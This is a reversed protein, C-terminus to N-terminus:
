AISSEDDTTVQRDDALAFLSFERKASIGLVFYMSFCRQSARDMSASIVLSVAAFDAM